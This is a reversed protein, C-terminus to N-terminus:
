AESGAAGPVVLALAAEVTADLVRASTKRLETAAAEARAHIEAAERDAAALAQRRRETSAAAANQKATELISAAEVRAAQLRDTAATRTTAEEALARELQRISALTGDGNPSSNKEDGDLRRSSKEDGDLRRSM